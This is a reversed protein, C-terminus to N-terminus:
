LGKNTPNITLHINKPYLYKSKNKKWKIMKLLLEKSESVVLNSANWLMMWNIKKIYNNDNHIIHEINNKDWYIILCIKSTLPFIIETTPEIIWNSKWSSNIRYIPFDCTIFSKKKKTIYLFHWWRNILLDHLKEGKLFNKYLENRSNHFLKEEFWESKSLELFNKEWFEKKAQHIWESVKEKLKKSIESDVSVSRFIQLRIFDIFINKDSITLDYFNKQGKNKLKKIIKSFPWEILQFEKEIKPIFIKKWNKFDLDNFIHNEWWINEISSFIRKDMKWDPKKKFDWYYCWKTKFWKIDIEKEFWSLYFKSIYHNYKYKSM